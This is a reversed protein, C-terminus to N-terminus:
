EWPTTCRAANRHSLSQSSMGLASTPTLTSRSITRGIERDLREMAVEAGIVGTHWAVHLHIASLALELAECTVRAVPDDHQGTRWAAADQTMSMALDNLWGSRDTARPGVTPDHQARSKEM